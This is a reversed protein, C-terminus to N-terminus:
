KHRVNITKTRGVELKPLTITLVGDVHEATAKENSAGARELVINALLAICTILSSLSIIM